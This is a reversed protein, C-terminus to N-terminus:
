ALIADPVDTYGTREWGNALEWAPAAHDAGAHDHHASEYLEAAQILPMVRFAQM